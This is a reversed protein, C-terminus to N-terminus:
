HLDRLRPMTRRVEDRVVGEVPAKGGDFTGLFWLPSFMTEIVQSVLHTPALYGSSYIQQISAGLYVPLNEILNAVGSVAIFLALFGLFTSGSARLAQNGAGVSTFVDADEFFVPRLWMYLVATIVSVLILATWNIAVGIPLSMFPPSPLEVPGFAGIQHKLQPLM